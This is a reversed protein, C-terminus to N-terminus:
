SLKGAYTTPLGEWLGVSKSSVHPLNVVFLLHILTVFTLFLKELGVAQGSVLDGNM